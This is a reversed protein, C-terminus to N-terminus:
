RRRLQELANTIRSRVGKDPEVRMREELIAICAPTGARGLAKAAAYRVSANPHTSLLEVLLPEARPDGIEGLADIASMQLNFDTSKAAEMLEPLASPDGARGLAFAAMQALEVSGSQIVERLVPVAEKARLQGLVRAAGIQCKSPEKGRPHKLADILYPIAMDGVAELVGSVRVNPGDGGLACLMTEVTQAAGMGKTRTQWYAWAPDMEGPLLPLDGGHLTLQLVLLHSVGEALVDLTAKDGLQALARVLMPRLFSAEWASERCKDALMPAAEKVQLQALAWAGLIVRLRGLQSVRGDKKLSDPYTKDGNRVWDMMAAVYADRGGARLQVREITLLALQVDYDSMRDNQAVRQAVFEELPPILDVGGIDGLLFLAYTRVVLWRDEEPTTTGLLFTKNKREGMFKVYGELHQVLRAPNQRAERYMAILEPPTEQLVVAPQRLSGKPVPLDALSVGTLALLAWVSVTLTCRKM